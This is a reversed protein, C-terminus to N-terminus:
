NLNLRDQIDKVALKLLAIDNELKEFKNEKKPLEWKLQEKGNYLEKSITMEIKDGEKWPCTPAFWLGNAWTEGHEAVQIGVKLYPKNNKDYLKSGDKKTDSVSVRKITYIM